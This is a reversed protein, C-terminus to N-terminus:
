KKYTKNYWRDGSLAIEKENKTLQRVFEERLKEPLPALVQGRAISQKMGKITGKLKAYEKLWHKALDMRKM